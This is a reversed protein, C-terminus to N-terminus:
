AAIQIMNINSLLGNLVYNCNNHFIQFYGPDMLSIRDCAINWGFIIIWTKLWYDLEVPYMIIIIRFM